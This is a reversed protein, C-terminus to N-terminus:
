EPNPTCAYAAERAATFCLAAEVAEDMTLNDFGVGLVDIRNM